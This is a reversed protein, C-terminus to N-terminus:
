SSTPGLTTSRLKEFYPWMSKRFTDGKQLETRMPVMPDNELDGVIVIMENDQNVQVQVSLPEGDFGVEQRSFEFMVTIYRTDGRQRDAATDKSYSQVFYGVSAHSLDITNTSFPDASYVNTDYEFITMGDKIVPESRLPQTSPDLMPKFTWHGPEDYYLFGYRALINQNRIRIRANGTQDRYTTAFQLAGQVVASKLTSEDLDEVYFIEGPRAWETIEQKLLDRLAKFLIGRGSFIVTDIPIYGKSCPRPDEPTGCANVKFLEFFNSLVGNTNIDLYHKVSESALIDSSQFTLTDTIVEVEMDEDDSDWRHLRAENLAPKLENRIKRKFWRRGQMAQPDRLPGFMNMRLVKGHRNDYAVVAEALMCDLYNGATITGMRGLITIQQYSTKEENVPPDVRLFTLDLTGAGMDYILVYEPAQRFRDLQSRSLISARNAIYYSAVADSESLFAIYNKKIYSSFHETVLARLYDIHRPTFTNPVTFVVKNLLGEHHERELIPVIYDSLLRHYTSQLLDRVAIPEDQFSRLSGDPAQKYRIDDYQDLLKPLKDLGVLAKLYPIPPGAETAGGASPALHVLDDERNAAAVCGGQRFITWSSLFKTGFEQVKGEEYSIAEYVSHQQQLDLLSTDDRPTQNAFSAVIASTGLDIALWHAGPNKEIEFQITFTCTNGATTFQQTRTEADEIRQEVELYDFRIQAQVRAIDDPIAAIADHRFSVRLDHFSGQQDPFTMEKPVDGPAVTRGKTNSDKRISIRFIDNLSRGNVTEIDSYREGRELEFGLHFNRVYVAGTGSEAYNGLRMTFCRQTAKKNPSWVRRRSLVRDEDFTGLPKSTQFVEVQLATTRTDRTILFSKKESRFVEQGDIVFEFRVNATYDSAASPNALKSLDVYVPITVRNNALLNSVHIGGQNDAQYRTVKELRDSLPDRLGEGTSDLTPNSEDVESLPGLFVIGPDYSGDLGVQIRCDMSHTYVFDAGGEISIEGLRYEGKHHEFGIRFDPDIDFSYVLKPYAKKFQLQVNFTEIKIADGQKQPKGWLAVEMSAETRELDTCDRIQKPDFLVEYPYRNSTILLDHVESASAKSELLPNIMFLRNEDELEVSIPMSVIDLWIKKYPIKVRKSILGLWKKPPVEFVMQAVRKISLDGAGFEVDFEVHM